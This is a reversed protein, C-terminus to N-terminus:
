ACAPCIESTASKLARSCSGTCRATSNRVPASSSGSSIETDSIVARGRRYRGRAKHSSPSAYYLKARVLLALRVAAKALQEKVAALARDRYAAEVRYVSVPRCTDNEGKRVPFAYRNGAADKPVDKTFSYSIDKAVNYSEQ